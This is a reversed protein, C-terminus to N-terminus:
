PDIGANSLHGLSMLFPRCSFSGPLLSSVAMDTELFQEIRNELFNPHRESEVLFEMCAPEGVLPVLGCFVAYGICIDSRWPSLVRM